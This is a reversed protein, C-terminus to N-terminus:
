ETYADASNRQGAQLGAIAVFLATLVADTRMREGTQIMTAATFSMILAIVSWGSLIQIVLLGM